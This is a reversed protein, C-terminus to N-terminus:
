MTGTRWTKISSSPVTPWCACRGSCSCDSLNHTRSWKSVLRAVSSRLEEHRSAQQSTMPILLFQDTRKPLQLQVSQKTRRILTDKLKDRIDNLNKYGIAKGSEPDTVIHDYRFRYLPSLCYPDALQVISSLEDLNNEIPTGSLLVSYHADIRRVAWALQTNWNKLRQVEDMILMDTSLRNLSKIDNALSQFSVIKYPVPTTYLELRRSAYGEVILVDKRGTFREIESKWQYKLSNPCVILVSEVMKERLYIEACCIAQVTKGLGMEDAIIAKGAKFAFRVGEKQYPYLKKTLLADLTTDAYVNNKRSCLTSRQTQTSTKQWPLGKCANGNASSLNSRM